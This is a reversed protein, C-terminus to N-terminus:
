YILGYKRSFGALVEESITGDYMARGQYLRLAQELVDQDETLICLPKSMEFQHDAFVSLQEQNEIRIALLPDSKEMEEEIADSLGDSCSLVTQYGVSAPYLYLEKETALPLKDPYRKAFALPLKIDATKAADALTKVHEPETGCCGGYIAVGASAFDKVIPAFAEPPCDYITKGDVIKPMGANPKAILPVEAYEALRKLQVLMEEPGVSCNLGFADVGMGQLIMLAATVDTGTLTKGEKDCTFTVFVPKDSVSKVALVAARAEPVTMMTEVVFLDAGAEELAKAQETYIEVMEEFTTDGLPALFKGTPAIDGAVFAKGDTAKKSIGLLKKNYDSVQGTIGNEELKVRNAGFTSAYVINSGAEMYNKQIETITEPHEIVWQEACQENTYGRKQLQTGTAGDLILPFYLEM